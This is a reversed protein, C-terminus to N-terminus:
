RLVDGGVALIMVRCSLASCCCCRRVGVGALDGGMAVGVTAVGIGGVPTGTLMGGTGAAAAPLFTILKVKKSIKQMLVLISINNKEENAALITVLDLSFGFAFSNTSFGLAFSNMGGVGLGGTPAVGGGALGIVGAVGVPIFM